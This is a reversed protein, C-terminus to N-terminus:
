NGMKVQSNLKDNEPQRNLKLSYIMAEVQRLLNRKDKNPAYVYGFAVVVRQNAADLEALSIYPGGMYDNVVRWLGRMESAYNGHHELFSTMQSIRRETTMFSGETPGPVRAKLLSDRINLQYKEHFASDSVYPFTYVIIGQSIEPTEYRLWIFDKKQDAIQYGPGVKMTIGFDKNLVNFVEREFYKEYNMTLRNKEANLYYSLIRVKNANFLSAFDAEDKAEITVTAQPSAWVNNKFIVASSDTQSSIRVQLINRTTKFVSKFAEPPVNILDFLPEDQPLAIHPQALTERILKGQDSDWTQNSVVIVLEGPKGTISKSIGASDSQECSRTFLLIFIVIAPYLIVQKIKKM